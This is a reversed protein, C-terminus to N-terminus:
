ERKGTLVEKINESKMIEKIWKETIDKTDASDFRKIGQIIDSKLEDHKIIRNTKRFILRVKYVGPLFRLFNRWFSTPPIKDIVKYIDGKCDAFDKNFYYDKFIKEKATYIFGDFLPIAEEEDIWTKSDIRIIPYDIQEM